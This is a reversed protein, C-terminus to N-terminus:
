AARRRLSLEELICMRHAEREVATWFLTSLSRLRVQLEAESMSRYSARDVASLEHLCSM